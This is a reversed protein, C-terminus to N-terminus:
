DEFSDVARNAVIGNFRFTLFSGIATSGHSTSELEDGVTDVFWDGTYELRKDSDDVTTMAM